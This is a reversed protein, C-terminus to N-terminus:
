RVGGVRLGDIIFHALLRGICDYASDAVRSFDAPRLSDFQFQGSDVWHRM